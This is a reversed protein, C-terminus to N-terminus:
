VMPELEQYTIQWEQPDEPLIISGQGANFLRSARSLLDQDGLRQTLERALRVRRLGEKSIVRAAGSSAASVHMDAATLGAFSNVSAEVLDLANVSDVANFSSEWADIRGAQGNISKLQLVTLPSVQAKQGVSGIGQKVGQIEADIIVRQPYALDRMGQNACTTWMAVDLTGDIVEEGEMFNFLQGNLRQHYLTYPLFANGELDRCPYFGAEAEPYYFNTAETLTGDKGVEVIRFMPDDPVEVSWIEYAWGEFGKRKVWRLERLAVPVDPYDADPVVNTVCDPTVARYAIQGNKLRDVRVLCENLGNVNM